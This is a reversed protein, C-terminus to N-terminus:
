KYKELDSILEALAKRFVLPQDIFFKQPKTRKLMDLLDDSLWIDTYRFYFFRVSAPDQPVIQQVSTHKPFEFSGGGVVIVIRLPSEEGPACAGEDLIKQFVDDLYASAQTRSGLTGLDIVAREQEMFVQMAHQWDFNTADERDFLTKMRLADLITVRVCGKELLLHSLVSSAQLTPWSYRDYPEDISTNVVIDVYLSRSNKVPLWEKSPSLFQSFRSVIQNGGTFEVEPLTRDLEPLPDKSLGTVKVRKRVINGQKLFADYVILVITYRGPRVFLINAYEINHYWDMGSPVSGHTYSYGPIWRGDATAVKLVFHLDRKRGVDELDFGNITASITLQQRQQRTLVPGYVRVKWPFDNHDPLNLWEGVDFPPLNEEACLAFVASCLTILLAIFICRILALKMTYM